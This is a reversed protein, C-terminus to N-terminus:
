KGPLVVIIGLEARVGSYIVGSKEEASVSKVGPMENSKITYKDRNYSLMFDFAIHDTVFYSAGAGLGFEIINDKREYDSGGYTNISKSTGIGMYVEAFPKLKDQGLFYYRAFPGFVFDNSSYKSDASGYTSKSFSADLKIGVPLNDIVFYGVKPKLGFYTSKSSESTNGGTFETTKESILRLYGTGQFYFNGKDVQALVTSSLVFLLAFLSFHTRM